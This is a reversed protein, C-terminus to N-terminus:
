SRERGLGAEELKKYPNNESASGLSLGTLLVGFRDQPFWGSV